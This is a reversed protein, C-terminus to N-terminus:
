AKGRNQSIIHELIHINVCLRTAVTFLKRRKGDENYYVIYRNLNQDVMIEALDAIDARAEKNGDSFFIDGRKLQMEFKEKRSFNVSLASIDDDKVSQMIYAIHASTLADGVNPLNALTLGTYSLSKGNKPVIDIGRV